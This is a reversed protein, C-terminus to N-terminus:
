VFCDGRPFGAAFLKNSDDAEDDDDTATSAEDADESERASCTEIKTRGCFPPFGTSSLTGLFTATFTFIPVVRDNEADLSWFYTTKLLM